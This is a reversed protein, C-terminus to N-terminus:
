GILSTVDHRYCATHFLELLHSCLQAAVVTNVHQRDAAVDGVCLHHFVHHLLRHFVESADVDEDVIGARPSNSRSLVDGILLEVILHLYVEEAGELHSTSYGLVGHNRGLIPTDDIDCRHVSQHAVLNCRARWIM